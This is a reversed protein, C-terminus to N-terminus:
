QFQGSYFNCFYEKNLFIQRQSNHLPTLTQKFNKRFLFNMILFFGLYIWLLIQNIIIIVARLEYLLLITQIDLDFFFPNSPYSFPLLLLIIISMIVMLAFIYIFLESVIFNTNKLLNRKNLSEIRFLSNILIFISTTICLLVLNPIFQSFINNLYNSIENYTGSFTVLISLYPPSMIVM